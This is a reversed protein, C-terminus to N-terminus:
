GLNENYIEGRHPLLADRIQIMMAEEVVMYAVAHMDTLVEHGSIQTAMKEKKIFDNLHLAHHRAIEGSDPGRFDWLLKIKKSM